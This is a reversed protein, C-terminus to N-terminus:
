ASRDGFLDDLISRQAKRLHNHLTPSSIDLSDALEEATTERPWDFYGALYAARLVSRQKETLDAGDLDALSPSGSVRHTTERKAVFETSPFATTVGEVVARVDVDPPFEAAVTAAGEDVDYRTVNGGADALVLPLSDDVFVLELVSAEPGSRVLRARDVAPTETARDVVTEPATGAARAYLVLRGDAVPAVGELSFSCGCAATTEILFSRADTSRFALEVVADARLLRRRTADGIAAGLRRGLEALLRAAREGVPGETTAVGLTGHTTGGDALPVFLVEHDPGLGDIETADTVRRVGAADPPAELVAPAAALVGEPRADVGAGAALSSPDDGGGPIATWAGAYGVEVLTECATEAIAGRTTAEGLVEGVALLANTARELSPARDDGSTGEGRRAFAAAVRDADPDPLLATVTELTDWGGAAQVVRPPVGDALAQRAFHRRLTRSSVQVGEVREGVERLIMQVRRASVAVVSEEPARDRERAFKRLRDHVAAPLVAVRDGVDVLHVTEGDVTSERLDAPTVAVIETPRLGAEGALRVLLEERYTATAERVRRYDRRDVALGSEIADPDEPEDGRM